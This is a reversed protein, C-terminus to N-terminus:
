RKRLLDARNPNRFEAVGDPGLHQMFRDRIRHYLETDIAFETHTAGLIRDEFEEFGQFRSISDFFVEDELLFLGEDVADRLAEFAAERVVREDHFLRMIENFPGAYLPESIYAIGGPRLVRHIEALGQRLLHRPVHHLSKLMIVADISGDAADIAEVGGLRFTVKPLDNIQLNKEHQVRDVETAIVERVPLEEAIRRTTLARGCGLELLRGGAVPLREAILQLDSMIPLRGPKLLQL